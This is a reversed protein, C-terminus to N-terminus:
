QNELINLGFVSYLHNEIFFTKLFNLNTDISETLGKKISVLRFVLVTYIIFRM